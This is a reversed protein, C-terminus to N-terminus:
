ARGDAPMGPVERQAAAALAQSPEARTLGKIDDVLGRSLETAQKVQKGLTSLLSGGLASLGESLAASSPLQTATTAASQAWPPVEHM